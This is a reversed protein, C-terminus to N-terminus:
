RPRKQRRDKRNNCHMKAQRATFRTKLIQITKKKRVKTITKDRRTEAAERLVEGYLKMATRPIRLRSGLFWVESAEM